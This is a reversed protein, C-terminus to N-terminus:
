LSLLGLEVYNSKSYLDNHIFIFLKLMNIESHCTNHSRLNPQPANHSSTHLKASSLETDKTLAQNEGEFKM